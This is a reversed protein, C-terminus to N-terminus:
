SEETFTHTRELVTLLSNLVLQTPEVYGRYYEFNNKMMQYRLGEDQLLRAVSNVCGDVTNFELYNKGEEFPGPVVALLRESVIAKAAAIYEAFKWGISDHLGTSAIGISCQKMLQLYRSRITVNPDTIACDPFQKRTCASDALGGIFQAGFANRCARICAARMENIQMRQERIEAIDHGGPFDEIDEPDWARALFIVTPHADFMPLSEIDAPRSPGGDIHLVRKIFFKASAKMSLVTYGLNLGLPLVKEPTKLAANLSPRCSRKFYFDCDDLLKDMVESYVNKEGSYFNYGDKVDYLIRWRGNLVASLEIGADVEASSLKYVELKLVKRQALRRFGILLQELHPWRTRPVRLSVELM